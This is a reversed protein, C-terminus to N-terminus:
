YISKIILFTIIAKLDTMKEFYNLCQFKFIDVNANASIFDFYFVLM